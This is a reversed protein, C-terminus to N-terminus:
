IQEVMAYSFVTNRCLRAEQMLLGFGRMICEVSLKEGDRPKKKKKRGVNDM